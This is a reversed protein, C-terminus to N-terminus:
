RRRVVLAVRRKSRRIVLRKFRLGLLKGVLLKRMPLLLGRMHKRMVEGSNRITRESLRVM